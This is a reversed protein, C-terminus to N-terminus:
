GFDYFFEEKDIRGDKIHYVCIESMTMRGYQKMTIDMTMSVSFWNGAIVPESVQLSHVAETREQFERGKDRIAALGEVNGLAGPPLGEPEISVADDAYLEDQAQSFKGERCLEVLRGAIQEINM